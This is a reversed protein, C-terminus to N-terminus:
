KARVIRVTGNYQEELKTNSLVYYYVTPTLNNGNWNNQYDTSHFVLEGWRSYIRLDWVDEDIGKIKFLENIGDNTPTFINPIYIEGCYRTKINISDQWTGCINETILKYFGDESIEFSTDTTGDQWLFENDNSLNPELIYTSNECIVTDKIFNFRPLYKYSLIITDSNTCNNLNYVKVYFTGTTDTEFYSKTSNDQWVYNYNNHFADIKYSSNECFSTDNGLNIEPIESFTINITDSNLCKTYINQVKVWYKNSTNIELVSDISNNNWLYSLHPSYANLKYNNAICFTTDNGLELEPLSVIKINEFYNTAINNYWVTLKVKYTGVKTFIHYPSINNSTNLSGSNIDNFNWFVSDIEPIDNIIFYTSDSFCRGEYDFIQKKFYSQLFNPLGLRSKKGDLYITNKEFGCSIHLSDPYNIVSLYNSTDATVYIKGNNANQIAGIPSDFIAIQSLSNQIDAQTGANIDVQFLTDLSSIYLKSNDPSFECSYALNIVPRNIEIPNSLIGTQNDFDLIDWKSARLIATVIKTGDPSAKMYGIALRQDNSFNTGVNSIIPSNLGNKNLLYSYYKSNGYEHAIIWYDKNNHHKVATIKELTSDLLLINKYLIEGNGNENNMNVTSYRLGNTDFYKKEDDVLVDSTFIYLQHDNEPLPIIIASQTSSANGMLNEGNSMIQHEKNWVTVGNTYFLLNGTSDSIVACGEYNQLQGNTLPEPNGSSFDLGAYDGFYWFDAEHQSYLNLSLFFFSITILFIYKM